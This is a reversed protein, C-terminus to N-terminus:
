NAGPSINIEDLDQRPFNLRFFQLHMPSQYLTTTGTPTEATIALAIVDQGALQRQTDHSALLGFAHINDVVPSLLFGARVMGPVLRYRLQRGDRRVVNLTLLPPKYLTSVLKGPLTQNIEIKAWIPGGTVAPMALSQGFRLSTEGIPELSWARPTPARKMLVFPPKIAQIDYRTLFEPWSLADEQAPFRNDITCLDLLINEAARDSALHSANLKALEPTYVTFSQIVPRPRYPIGHAFLAVQNFSYEDATGAFPPIPFKARFRDYAAAYETRTRQSGTLLRIPEVLNGPSFTRAFDSLLNTDMYRVRALGAWCIIAILPAFHAWRIWGRQSGLPRWGVALNLLCLLLLALPVSEAHVDHRVFGHKFTLFVIAVLGALVFIGSHRVKGRALAVTQWCVLPAVVLFFLLEQGAWKSSLALGETYGSAIRWSNLFYPGVTSFHQGAAFWFSVMSVGFVVVIWPFRRHRFITDAAITGIVVLTMLLVSFKIWGILALAVAMLAHTRTFPRHATFFHFFLFLVNWEFYDLSYGPLGTFLILWLGRCLPNETLQGAVQWGVRWFLVALVTWITVHLLHTAPLYGTALFGWPGFTYILERGFQLNRAFGEHLVQPFSYDLIAQPDPPVCPVVRSLLYLLTSAGALWQGAVRWATREAPNQVDRATPSDGTVNKSNLEM